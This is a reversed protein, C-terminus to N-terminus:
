DEQELLDKMTKPPEVIMKVKAIRSRTAALIRFRMGDVQVEEGVKPVREFFELLYGGLTEYDTPPFRIGLEREIDNITVKSDIIFTFESVREIGFDEGEDFEDMIEGVVEEIIDEITVIGETGGYEDVVIAMHVMFTKFEKLLDDVKKTEPVFYPERMIEKVKVRSLMESGRQHTTKLIDKAYLVGVIHDVTERYVPFRSFGEEHVIEIANELSIQESVAFVDVRPIMIEKVSTDKLALTRQLMKSEEEELAGEQAGINVAYAIEDETIFPADTVRNSGMLRLLFNSISILLWIVPTFLVSLFTVVGITRNFVKETHQVALVKPTIEGFILVLFTMIGTVFAAVTGSHTKPFLSLSILTALSSALINVLNNAVLITTLLRNPRHLAEHLVRRKEKNETKEMLERLKLKSMSTLATESSSFFSSLALLAALLLIQWGISNSLPEGDLLLNVM